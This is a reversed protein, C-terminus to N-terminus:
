ILRKNISLLQQLWNSHNINGKLCCKMHLFIFTLIPKWIHSPQALPFFINAIQHDTQGEFPYVSKLETLLFVLKGELRELNKAPIRTVFSM